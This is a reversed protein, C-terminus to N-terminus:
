EASRMSLNFFRRVKTEMVEVTLSQSAPKDFEVQKRCANCTWKDGTRTLSNHPCEPKKPSVTFAPTYDAVNKKSVSVTGQEKYGKALKESIKKNYHSIAASQYHFVNQHEQGWGGTKGFRVEVVWQGESEFPPLIEWFKNSGGGVYTFRRPKAM